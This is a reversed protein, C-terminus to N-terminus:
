ALVSNLHHLELCYYISFHNRKVSTVFQLVFNMMPHQLLNPMAVHLEWDIHSWVARWVYPGAGSDPTLNPLALYSWCLSNLFHNPCSLRIRFQFLKLQSWSWSWRGTKTGVWDAQRVAMSISLEVCNLHPWWSVVELLAFYNWHLLHPHRLDLLAVLFLYETRLHDLWKLIKLNTLRHCDRCWFRM